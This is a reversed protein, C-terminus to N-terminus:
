VCNSVRGTPSRQVLSRGTTTAAVYVVYLLYFHRIDVMDDAFNKKTNAQIRYKMWVQNKTKIIRCKPKQRKKCCLVFM